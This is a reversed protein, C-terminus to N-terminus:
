KMSQTLCRYRLAVRCALYRGAAGNPVRQLHARHLWPLRRSRAATSRAIADAKTAFVRDRGFADLFGGRELAEHVDPKLNCLYLTGGADRLYRAGGAGAVRLGAVDIFNIGSGILLM